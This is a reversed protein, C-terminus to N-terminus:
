NIYKKIDELSAIDFINDRIRRLQELDLSDIKGSLENSSENLKLKKNLLVSITYKKIRKDKREGKIQGKIEGEKKLRDAVTMINESREPIIEEVTKKLDDITIDDRTNLIYRM